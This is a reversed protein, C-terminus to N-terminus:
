VSGELMGELGAPSTSRGRGTTLAQEILAVEALAALVERLAASAERKGRETWAGTRSSLEHLKTAAETRGRLEAVPLVVAIYSHLDKVADAVDHVTAGRNGSRQSPPTSDVRSRELETALGSLNEFSARYLEANMEAHAQEAKQEHAYIQAFLQERDRGTRDALAAAEFLCRKILQAVRQWPPFGVRLRAVEMQELQDQLEGLCDAARAHDGASLAAQCDAQQRTFAAQLETGYQGGFQPLLKEIRAAVDALEEASPQHLAAPAPVQVVEARGAQPIVVRVTLSRDTAVETEIEVNAGAPTRSDVDGVVVQRLLRDEEWLPLVIRGCQDATHCTCAFKAPLPMGAPALLQKRRGGGRVRVELLLDHPLTPVGPAAPATPTRHRLIVPVTAVVEGLDDCLALVLPLESHPRLTLAHAFHGENSFFVEDVLGSDKHQILLSGGSFFADAGKGHLRGALAYETNDTTLPGSLHLEYGGLPLVSVPESAVNTPAQSL